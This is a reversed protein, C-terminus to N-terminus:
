YDEIGDYGFEVNYGITSDDDWRDEWQSRPALEQGSMNYVRNCGPCDIGHGYDGELYVTSGCKCKGEAPEWYESSLDQIGEFTILGDPKASERLCLAFNEDAFSTEEPTKIRNGQADCPFGFGAGNDSKWVYHLRYDEHHALERQKIIELM